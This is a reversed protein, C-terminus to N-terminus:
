AIILYEHSSASIGSECTDPLISTTPTLINRLLRLCIDGDIIIEDPM